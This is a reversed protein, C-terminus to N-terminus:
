TSRRERLARIREQMQPLRITRFKDPLREDDLVADFVEIDKDLALRASRQEQAFRFIRENLKLVDRTRGADLLEASFARTCTISARLQRWALGTQKNPLNTNQVRSEMCREPHMVSLHLITGDPRSVEVPIASATIDAPQLGYPRDLLDLQREYGDSDLFTVIGIIPTFHDISPVRLDGGLLAAAQALLTSSGQFDIDKSAVRDAELGGLLPEFYSVWLAVAQGGILITEGSALVDELRLLIRRAEEISLPPIEPTISVPSDSSSAEM